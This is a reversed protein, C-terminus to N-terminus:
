GGELQSEVQGMGMTTKYGIGTFPASAALFAVTRRLFPANVRRCDYIVQGTCGIIMYRDFDSEASKLEYRAVRIFPVFEDPPASNDRFWDGYIACNKKYLSRFVLGPEPFLEQVGDRRFSTPLLFKIRLNKLAGLAFHDEWWKLGDLSQARRFRVEVEKSDFTLGTWVQAAASELVTEMAPSLASVLVEAGGTPWICFPKENMEHLSSAFEPDLGAIIRFLLGHVARGSIETPGAQLFSMNIRYLTPM